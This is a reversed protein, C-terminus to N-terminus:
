EEKGTTTNGAADLAGSAEGAAGAGGQPKLLRKDLVFYYIAAVITAIVAVPVEAVAMNLLSVEYGLSQMTGQVLLAGSTGVFLVQGFFWTINEMGTAMGKLHDLQEETLPGKKEAAAQAMPMLIPRIFGAVGGFSVNFAAFVLRFVGYAAILVSASANKLKGMLRAAAVKLGERELTGTLLLVIVFISMSRNAVFSSGITTLLTMVDMNSVLATVVAALVITLISNLRLAFGVVVILIGILKLWEM